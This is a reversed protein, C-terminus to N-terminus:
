SMKISVMIVGNYLLLNKQDPTKPGYNILVYNLVKSNGHYSLCFVKM